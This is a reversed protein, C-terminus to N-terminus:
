KNSPRCLLDLSNQSVIAIQWHFAMGKMVNRGAHWVRMWNLIFTILILYNVRFECSVSIKSCTSGFFFFDSTYSMSGQRCALYACLIRISAATWFNTCNTDTLIGLLTSLLLQVTIKTFCWYTTTSQLISTITRMKNFFFVNMMWDGCIDADPDSRAVSPGWHGCKPDSQQAFKPVQTRMRIPCPRNKSGLFTRVPISGRVAYLLTRQRHPAGGVFFPIRRRPADECPYHFSVPFWGHSHEFFSTRVSFSFILRCQSRTWSAPPRPFHPAGLRKRLLSLLTLTSPSCSNM